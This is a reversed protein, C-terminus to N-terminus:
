TSAALQMFRGADINAAGKAMDEGMLTDRLTDELVDVKFETKVHNVQYDFLTFNGDATLKVQPAQETVDNETKVVGHKSDTNL